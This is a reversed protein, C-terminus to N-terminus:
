QARVKEAFPSAPMEGELSVNGLKIQMIIDRCGNIVRDRLPIHAFNFFWSPGFLIGAKHCEQFFMAKFMPDGKFVGRTPYGEIQIKDPALANFEDLFFQGHKWLEDLSHTPQHLMDITQKMVSLSLLEGSYSGSVFWESNDGIKEGLGMVALPMGSACAKGLLIIDPHIGSHASFTFRPWRFGTIIEDFILIIGNKTCLERLRLLWEKRKESHDTMIPEIIVCAVDDRLQKFDTLSEIHPLKPVGLAPATLSVFADSWGHYGASLVKTRGTHAMAVRVAAACAETGSKLFRVKRAFPLIRLVHEAAEVELTSGLSYLWGKELRAQITKNILPHAYGFLNTGLACIFDIYEKKDTGYLFAGRGHTVHTPSVGKVLCEVRKSNTLSGQAIVKHARRYWEFM